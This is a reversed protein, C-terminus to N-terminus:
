VVAAPTGAHLGTAKVGDRNVEGAVEDSWGLCSLLALDALGGAFRDSLQLTDADQVAWGPHPMDVEHEVACSTSVTGGPEALVGKSSYTGVDVGLLLQGVSV